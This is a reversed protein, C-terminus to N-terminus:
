NWQHFEDVAIRIEYSWAPHKSGSVSLEASNFLGPRQHLLDKSSLWMSGHSLFTIQNQLLVLISLVQIVPKVAHAFCPQRLSRIPDLSHLFTLHSAETKRKPTNM